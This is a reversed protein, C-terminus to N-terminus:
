AILALPPSLVTTMRMVFGEGQAGRGLGKGGKRACSSWCIGGAVAGAAASVVISGEM